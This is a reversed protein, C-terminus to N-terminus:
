IVFSQICSNFRLSQLNPVSPFSRYVTAFLGLLFKNIVPNQSKYHSTIASSQSDSPSCGPHTLPHRSTLGHLPDSFRLPRRPAHSLLETSSHRTPIAETFPDFLPVLISSTTNFPSLSIGLAIFIPTNLPYRLNFFVPFYPLFSTSSPSLPSSSFLHLLRTNLHRVIHYRPTTWVM